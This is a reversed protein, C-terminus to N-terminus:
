KANNMYKMVLEQVEKEWIKKPKTKRWNLAHNIFDQPLIFNYKEFYHILDNNWSYEGDCHALLSGGPIFEGTIVDVPVCAAAAIVPANKLYRLVAEKNSIPESSILDRLPPFEEGHFEKYQGIIIM